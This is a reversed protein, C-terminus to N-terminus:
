QGTTFDNGPAVNTATLDTADYFPQAVGLVSGTIAETNHIEIIDGDLGHAASTFKAKGSATVISTISGSEGKQFQVRLLKGVREGSTAATCVPVLSSQNFYATGEAVRVFQRAVYTNYKRVLYKLAFDLWNDVNADQAEPKLMRFLARMDARTM